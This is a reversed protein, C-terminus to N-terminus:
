QQGAYGCYGNTTSLTGYGDGDYWRWVMCASGLRRTGIPPEGGEHNRNGFKTYSYPCWKQMAEPETM